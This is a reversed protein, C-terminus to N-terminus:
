LRSLQPESCNCLKGLIVSSTLFPNPNLRLGLSKARRCPHRLAPRTARQFCGRPTGTEHVQEPLPCQSWMQSQFPFSAQVMRFAPGACELKGIRCGKQSRNECFVSSCAATHHKTRELLGEVCAISLWLMSTKLRKESVPASIECCRACGSM